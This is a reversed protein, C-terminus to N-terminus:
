RPRWDFRHDTFLAQLQGMRDAHCAFINMGDHFLFREEPEFSSLALWERPQPDPDGDDGCLYTLGETERLWGVHFLQYGARRLFGLPDLTRRPAEYCRSNEFVLMPKEKALLRSGGQLVKMEVGEVDIKIVSPPKLGLFDLTKLEATQGRAGEGEKMVALGSQFHDPLHMFAQGPHDSLGVNHCQVRGRLGAQEVVSCLDSYTSPLPEFAHIEGRFGPKSAIVLSFWGWNSGIDYFVGDVPCVLDVLATIPAEYGGSFSKRYLAQFQTNLANFQVRRQQDDIAYKFVGKPRLPSLRQFLLFFLYNPAGFLAQRGLSSWRDFPYCFVRAIWPIAEVSFPNRRTIERTLVAHMALDKPIPRGSQKNLNAASAKPRHRSQPWGM